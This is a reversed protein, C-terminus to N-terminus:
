SICNRPSVCSAGSADARAHQPSPKQCISWSIIFDTGKEKLKRVYKSLETSSRYREHRFSCLHNSYRKKLTPLTRFLKYGPQRGGDDDNRLLCHQEGSVRCIGALPCNANDRCKCFRDLGIAGTPSTQGLIKTLSGFSRASIVRVTLQTLLLSVPPFSM